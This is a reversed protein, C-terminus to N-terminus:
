PSQTLLNILPIVLTVVYTIPAILRSVLDGQGELYHNAGADQSRYQQHQPQSNMSCHRKWCTNSTLSTPWCPARGALRGLTPALQRAGGAPQGQPWLAGSPSALAWGLRKYLFAPSSCMLIQPSDHNTQVASVSFGQM